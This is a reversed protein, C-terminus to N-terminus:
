AKAKDLDTSGKRLRRRFEAKSFVNRFGDILTVDGVSSLTHLGLPYPGNPDPEVFSVVREAFATPSLEDVRNMAVRGGYTKSCDQAPRYLNGKWLFPTGAPRASVPSDLVPNEPHPTWPGELQDAYWVFLKRDPANVDTSFIWWRGDFRCATSDVGVFDGLLTTVKTWRDPFSDARYLAVEGAQSTEPVCYVHGDHEVLFPYSVHGPLALAAKADLTDGNAPWDFTVLTGRKTDKRYRECLVHLQGDHLLGFPDALYEDTGSAHVWRVEPRFDPDLFRHIPAAAVGIGWQRHRFYERYTTSAYSLAWRAKLLPAVLTVLVHHIDIGLHANGPRKFIEHGGGKGLM